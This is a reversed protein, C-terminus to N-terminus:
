QCTTIHVSIAEYILLQDILSDFLKTILRSSVEVLQQDILSYAYM